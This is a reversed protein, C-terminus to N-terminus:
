ISWNVLSICEHLSKRAQSGSDCADIGAPFADAHGSCMCAQLGLQSGQQLVLVYIGLGQM